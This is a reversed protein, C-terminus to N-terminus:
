SAVSGLEDSQDLHIRTRGSQRHQIGVTTSLHISVQFGSDAFSILLPCVEVSEQVEGASIYESPQIPEGSGWIVEQTVYVNKPMLSLIGAIDGSNM